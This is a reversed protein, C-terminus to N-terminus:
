VGFQPDQIRNPMIRCEAYRRLDHPAIDPLGAAEAYEEVVFWVAKESLGTGWVRGGRNIARWLPGSGISAAGLWDDIAVKVWAPIPVTRVRGGKGVLDAVVWRGDRQQIQEVTLGALEARRLACGLLVALIARDRKGKVTAADPAGLLSQAQQLTLWNGLRVGLRKAGKVRGIGAALDPDLLGNDAAEVALKRIASLRVNITAPALGDNELKVRFAQVTSKAFPPRGESEWWEIFGDLAVNYARRSHASTVGDLVLAKLQYWAVAGTDAPEPVILLERSPTNDSAIEPTLPGNDNIAM